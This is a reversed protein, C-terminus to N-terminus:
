REYYWPMLLRALINIIGFLLLSLLSIVVISAFVRVTLFSKMSRTMYVGLGRSAGLWEGIIAGMISYTASIKLGSFLSPLASPFRLKKFVQWTSAGMSILLKVMDRDVAELGEVLSVTIPFFCVLAVVMIKPLMGYGFWIILLPAIAMIPVTQSVVILPYLLRKILPILGMVIALIVGAVIALIFGLIAENATQISHKWLLDSTEFLVKGISIPSPLIFEEIGLIVVVMQWLVLLFLFFIASPVFKKIINIGNNTNM